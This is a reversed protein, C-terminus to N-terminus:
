YQAIRILVKGIPQHLTHSFFFDLKSSPASTPTVLQALGIKSFNKPVDIFVIRVDIMDM